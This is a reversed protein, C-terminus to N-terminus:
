KKWNPPYTKDYGPISEIRKVWNSINRYHANLNKFNLDLTKATDLVMARGLAMVFPFLIIDAASITDSAVYDSSALWTDLTKFEAHVYSASKEIADMSDQVDDFFVAQIITELPVRLYNEIEFIRQWIFTTEAPSTGFLPIEPHQQELHVLIAISEYVVEDGNKLIPVRTRPNMAAIEPALHEKKSFELRKSNYKLSKVELGLLARWSYPSGAGWYIDYAM